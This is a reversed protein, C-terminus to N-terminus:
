LELLLMDIAQVLNLKGSGTKQSKDIIYLKKYVEKIKSEGFLQGQRKLKGTQWDRLRKVEDINKGSDSFLALMLRFQRLIMTFIFEPASHSLASHFNVVNSPSNPLINDVFSFINQPIKFGRDSFKPFDNTQSKSLEKDAWIFIDLHDAKNIFELLQNYNKSAKKSFLNDIFIKKHESFLSSSSMLQNLINLDLDAADVIISTKDKEKNFNDRSLAFDDGHYLYIM